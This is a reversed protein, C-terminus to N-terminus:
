AEGKRTRALREARRIEDLFEQKGHQGKRATAEIKGNLMRAEEDTLDKATVIIIPIDKTNEEMKLFEIVEFGSIDPLMLDLFILDPKHKSAYEIGQLGTYAKSVSFAQGELMDAVLDVFKADDDVVLVKSIRASAAAGRLRELRELLERGGIPKVIYDAAGMSFGKLEDQVVSTIVVPIDSTEQSAKLEELVKWGDKDPLIIDLTIVAPHISRAAELSDVGNAAHVVRYGAEGLYTSLLEFSHPDDEVVLVVDQEHSVASAGKAATVKMTADAPTGLPEIVDTDTVPLTFYFASGKGKESEVWISGGHLEILKKTLALGLGTGEYQRSHSGDVQQFEHFIREQDAKDIGIGNDRVCFEAYRRLVFRDGESLEFDGVVDTSIEVWGKNPTFKIANSLLNYFIQKLKKQDATVTILKSSLCQRIMIEKKAALGRAFNAIEALAGAVSFTELHLDMKGSEVKALDLIENILQLLHRGSTVVNQAYKLQKENLMGYSQDSLIESFGIIANLPTRLEHSMNALFESKLKSVAELQQNTRYLEENILRLAKTREEVKQELTHSYAELETRYRKLDDTMKNFSAGLEGIEDNTHISVPKDLDGSAVRETAAVLQQVPNVILRVLFVTAAIALLVVMVTVNRITRRGQSIEENMTDLSIGIRAVGIKEPIGESRSEDGMGFIVEEGSLSPAKQTMIPVAIDYVPTKTEDKTFPQILLENTKLARETVEYASTQSIGEIHRPLVQTRALIEGRDNYIICYAVDKERTLGSIIGEFITNNGTLVGYESASAVNRALVKGKEQLHLAIEQIQQRVLFWGLVAATLIVVLSIYATIKLRLGFRFKPPRM